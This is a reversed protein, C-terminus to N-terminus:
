SRAGSFAKSVAKINTDLDKGVQYLKAILAKAGLKTKSSALADLADQASALSKRYATVSELKAQVDNERRCYELALLFNSGVPYDAARPGKACMAAPDAAVAGGARQIYDAFRATMQDREASLSIQLSRPVTRDLATLLQKALPVGEGILARLTKERAAETALRLLLGALGSTATVEAANIGPIAGVSKTLADLGPQVTFNQDGAADGLASFYSTLVGNMAVLGASAAAETACSALAPNFQQQRECSAKLEGGVANWSDSAALLKTSLTKVAALNTCAGLALALPLVVIARPRM